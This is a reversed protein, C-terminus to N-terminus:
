QFKKLVSLCNLENKHNKRHSNAIVIIIATRIKKIFGSWEVGSLYFHKKSGSFNVTRYGLIDENQHVLKTDYTFVLKFQNHITEQNEIYIGVLEFVLESNYKLEKVFGLSNLIVNSKQKITNLNKIIYELISKLLEKNVSEQDETKVEIEVTGIGNIHLETILSNRTYERLQSHIIEIEQDM